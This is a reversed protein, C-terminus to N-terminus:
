DGAPHPSTESAKVGALSRTFRRLTATGRHWLRLVGGTLSPKHRAVVVTVAPIGARELAAAASEYREHTTRGEGVVLLVLGPKLTAEVWGDVGSQSPDLILVDHQTRMREIGAKVPPSYAAALPSRGYRLVEAARYPTGPWIDERVTERFEIHFGKRRADDGAEAEADAEFDLSIVGSDLGTEALAATLAAATPWTTEPGCDLPMVSVLLSEPMQLEPLSRLREAAAGIDDRVATGDLVRVHGLYRGDPGEHEFDEPHVRARIIHAAAAVGGGALLAALLGLPVLQALPPPFSRRVKRAASFVEFGISPSAVERDVNFARGLLQSYQLVLADREQEREFIESPTASSDLDSIESQLVAARQLASEAQARLGDSVGQVAASLRERRAEATLQPIANAVMVATATDPATVTVDIFMSERPSTVVVDLEGATRGAEAAAQEIVSPSEFEVLLTRLEEEPTRGSTAGLVSDAQGGTVLVRTTATGDAPALGLGLLLLTFVGLTTLTVLRWSRRLVVGPYFTRTAEPAGPDSTAAGRRPLQPIPPIARTGTSTVLM